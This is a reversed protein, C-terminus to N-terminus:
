YDTKITGSKKIQREIDPPLDNHSKESIANAVKFESFSVNAYSKNMGVESMDKFAQTRTNNAIIKSDSIEKKDESM